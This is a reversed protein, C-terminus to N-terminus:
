KLINKLVDTSINDKPNFASSQMYEFIGALLQNAEPQNKIAQLNAACILLKGKGIKFEFILGLKYNRNINDIVQVIPRYAKDTNDLIVPRSNKIIYWWQWNTYFETPFDTFIPHSPNTLIGMTGPSWGSKKNDAFGNFMAYNWFETIFQGPVSNKLAGDANPFLLVSKGENLKKIVENNLKNAVIINEPAQIDPNAPYIWLPYSNKVETGEISITFIVKLAKNSTTNLETSGIESLGGKLINNHEIKGQALVEANAANTYTWSITKDIWDVADYNAIRISARIKENNKWTYKDMIGLVVVRNCSQRWEQPTVLGKSEMFANLLGVLATGQGPYDQLDLLQFGGFHPTRIANEVDAKYCIVSLAGSAKFFDNAQDGMGKAILKKRFLEFNWARLVGTYKTIENYDPYTQYQGIEHGIVPVPSYELAKSYTFTTSPYITNLVGGEKSDVFSISSRVDTSCDEKELAVRFSTWYDDGEAFSPNGGFNNSGQAYLFRNDYNRFDAVMKKLVNRDQYIENGLAFMVFSPYNGYNDLISKGETMMYAIQATDKVNMAWWNPLEPQLYIGEMAAALFAAQPPTWTHFRVHNLGYEKAIRFMRLWGTTDTPPYGTLPFVCADHRGRLFTPNGNIVFQKGNTKFEHMGFNEVIVDIANGNDLLKVNLKYLAPNFESWLNANEGMDYTLDVTTENSSLSVPYKIEPLNQAPGANWSDAQISIEPNKLSSSNKVIKALVKIKKSHIDTEIKVQDIYSTSSAELCFRGIVGNWNTQTDESYAHSGAVPVLKETNDILLTITHKGPTLKGSLDYVQEVFVHNNTGMDISDIWVRSVKTREMILVVHKTTWSAPVEITKKYWAAGYYAIPRTLHLDTSDHTANGKKNEDLSGPLTVEENFTLNFWKDQIGENKYDLKLQWTGDLKIQERQGLGLSNIVFAAIITTLITRTKM